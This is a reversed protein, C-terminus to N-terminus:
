DIGILGGREAENGVEEGLRWLTLTSGHGFAIVVEGM